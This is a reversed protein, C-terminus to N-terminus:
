GRQTRETTELAAQLMIQSHLREVEANALTIDREKKYDARSYYVVGGLIATLMLAVLSDLVLRM